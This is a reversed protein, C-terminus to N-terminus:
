HSAIFSLVAEDYAQPAEGPVTHSSGSIEVRTRRPLCRVLEDVIRHFFEPSHDGNTVLTPASIRKAMDCTFMPRPRTAIADAVASLANDAMMKRESESRRDYTGPGGVAEAFFRLGADLDDKEFAQRAPAFRAGWQKLVDNGGPAGALLAAAPPENIVLTRVAEPHNAAFFLAAHAGSSHAVIHASTIGLAALLAALDEGHVDAAGDPLGDKSTANPFHNQRSYAIVRHSKAFVPLHSNWFRYDQLGGHVLVVPDGQGAEVYAFQKGNVSVQKVDAGIAPALNLLCLVLGAMLIKAKFNMAGERPDVFHSSVVYDVEGRAIAIDQLERDDLACLDRRLKGRRRWEQFEDRYRGFLSILHRRMRTTASFATTSFTTTM